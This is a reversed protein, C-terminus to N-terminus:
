ILGLFRMVDNGYGAMNICVPLLLVGMLNMRRAQFMVPLLGIGTAVTMIALGGWSTFVFVAPIVIILAIVSVWFYAIKEVIWICMRTFPALMMYAMGAAFLMLAVFLAYEKLTLVSVVPTVIWALGGRTLSLGPIFFLLFSGVYYVTKCTGYSMVFLRGDRQATAHGAMLGGVGATVIPVYAAFFGGLFGGFTGRCVLGWDLEISEPDHQKPIQGINIINTILWPIAFLGVFVPTISQFAFEIPVLTKSMVIFGLLGSLLFTAIGVGLFKWGELFNEWCSESQSIGKPWESLIMYAIVTGLIWFMHPSTITKLGPMFWLFAPALVALMIIGGVAGVGTLLISEFGRGKAVWAASPLIYYSMSEDGPGFYTAPVTNLISYGVIMGICLAILQMPAMTAEFKLIVLLFIGIVNYIHLAPLFSILCSFLVGLATFYFLDLYAPNLLSELIAM